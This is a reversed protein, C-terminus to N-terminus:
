SPRQGGQMAFNEFNPRQDDHPKRAQQTPLLKEDIRAFRQGCIGFLPKQAVYFLKARGCLDKPEHMFWRAPCDQALVAPRSGSVLFPGGGDFAEGRPHNNEAMIVVGREFVFAPIALDSAGGANVNPLGVVFLKM